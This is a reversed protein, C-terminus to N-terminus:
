LFHGSSYFALTFDLKWTPCPPGLHVHASVDWSCKSRPPQGPPLSEEVLPMHPNGSQVTATMRRGGDLGGREPVSVGTEGWRHAGREIRHVCPLCSQAPPVEPTGQRCTCVLM